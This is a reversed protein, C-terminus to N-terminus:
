SSEDGSDSDDSSEDGSDSDGSSEDGSSSESEESGSDDSSEDSDSSESDGAAETEAAESGAEDLAMDGTSMIVVPAPVGSSSIGPELHESGVKKQEELRELEVFTGYCGREPELEDVVEIVKGVEFAKQEEGITVRLLSRVPPPTDLCLFPQEGGERLRASEALNAQRLDIRVVTESM